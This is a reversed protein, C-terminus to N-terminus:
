LPLGGPLGGGPLGGLLSNLLNLVIGILGTPSPTGPLGPLPPLPVGPSASTCAGITTTANPAVTVPAIPQSFASGNPLTGSVTGSVTATSSGGHVVLTGGAGSACAGPTVTPPVPNAEASATVTLGVSSLAPTQQCTSNVCVQVPANPVPVPGVSGSVTQPAALAIGAVSMSAILIGSAFLARSRMGRRENSSPRTKLDDVVAGIGDNAATM